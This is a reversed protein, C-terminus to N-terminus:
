RPSCASGARGSPARWRASPRGPAARPPWAFRARAARRSRRLLRARLLPPPAPRGARGAGAAPAAGARAAPRPGGGPPRPPEPARVPRRRGLHPHARRLHAPADGGLHDLADDPLVVAADPGAVLLPQPEVGAGLPPRRHAEGDAAVAAHDVGVREVALDVGA